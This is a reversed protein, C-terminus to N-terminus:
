KIKENMFLCFNVNPKEINKIQYYNLSKTLRTIEKDKQNCAIEFENLKAEM